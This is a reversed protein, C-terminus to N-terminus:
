GTHAGNDRRVLARRQHRHRLRSRNRGRPLPAQPERVRLRKGRKGRSAEQRPLRDPHHKRRRPQRHPPDTRHAPPGTGLRPDRGEEEPRPGARRPAPGREAGHHPHAAQADGRHSRVPQSRGRHDPLHHRTRCPTRDADPLDRVRAPRPSRRTHAPHARRHAPLPRPRGIISTGVGGMHFVEVHEVSGEGRGVRGGEAAKVLQPEHGDALADSGIPRHDLAPDTLRVLPTASAPLLAHRQARHGPAQRVLRETM